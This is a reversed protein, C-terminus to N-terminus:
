SGAKELRIDQAKFSITEDYAGEWTRSPGSGDVTCGTLTVTYGDLEVSLTLGDTFSLRKLDWVPGSSAVTVDLTVSSAQPTSGEGAGLAYAGEGDGSPGAESRLANSIKLEWSKQYPIRVGDLKWGKVSTVYAADVPEAPALLYKSGDADSFTAGAGEIYATTVAHHRAKFSVDLDVADGMKSGKVSLTDVKAGTWSHWESPGVKVLLDSSPIDTEVGSASGSARVIWDKLLGAGRQVRLTMSPECTRGVLFYGKNTRSGCEPPMEGLERSDGDDMTRVIGGYKRTGDAPVKGYATEELVTVGCLDGRTRIRNMAM